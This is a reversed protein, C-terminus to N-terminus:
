FIEMQFRDQTHVLCYFIWAFFIRFWAFSFAWFIAWICRMCEDAPSPISPFCECWWVCKAQTLNNETTVKPSFEPFACVLFFLNKLDTKGMEASGWLPPLSLSHSSFIRLETEEIKHNTHMCPIRRHATRATSFVQGCMQKWNEAPVFRLQLVNLRKRTMDLTVVLLVHASRAHTKQRAKSRWGLNNIGLDCHSRTCRSCAQYSLVCWRHFM